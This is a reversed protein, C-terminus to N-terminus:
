RDGGDKHLTDKRAEENNRLFLNAKEVIQLFQAEIPGQPEGVIRGIEKGRSLFLISPIGQIHYFGSLGAKDKLKQDVGILNLSVGPLYSVHLIKLLRSVVHQSLTDWTGLFCIVSLTPNLKEIRSLTISNPQYDDREKAYLPFKQLLVKEEIHGVLVPPTLSKVKEAQEPNKKSLSQKVVGERTIWLKIVSVSNSVTWELPRQGISLHVSKPDELTLLISKEAKWKLYQGKQLFVKKTKGTDVNVNIWTNKLAVATLYFYSSDSLLSETSDSQSVAEPIESIKPEFFLQKGYRVYLGVLVVFFLILVAALVLKRQKERLHSLQHRSQNDKTSVAEQEDRLRKQRFDYEKILEEPDLNVEKAITRVFARFYPEPLNDAEGAEIAKITNINIKTRKYLTEISIKQAERAEQIKKGIEKM